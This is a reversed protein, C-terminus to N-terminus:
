QMRSSGLLETKLSLRHSLWKGTLVEVFAWNYPSPSFFWVCLRAPEIFKLKVSQVMGEAYALTAVTATFAAFLGCTCCEDGTSVANKFRVSFDSSGKKRRAGACAKRMM